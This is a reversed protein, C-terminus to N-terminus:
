WAGPDTVPVTRVALRDPVPQGENGRGSEVGTLKVHRDGSRRDPPAAGAARTSRPLPAGASPTGPPPRGRRYRGAPTVPQATSCDSFGIGIFVIPISPHIEVAGPGRDAIGAQALEDKIDGGARLAPEVQDSVVRGAAPVPPQRPRFVLLDPQQAPKGPLVGAEMVVAPGSARERDHLAAQALPGRGPGARGPPAASGRPDALDNPGHYMWSTIFSEARGATLM